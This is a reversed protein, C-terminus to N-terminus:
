RSGTRASRLAYFYSRNYRTLVFFNHFGVAYDTPMDGEPLDILAVKATSELPM